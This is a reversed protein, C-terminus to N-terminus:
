HIRNYDIDSTIVRLRLLPLECKRRLAIRGTPSATTVIEQPLHPVALVAAVEGEVEGEGMLATQKLVQAGAGPLVVLAQELYKGM